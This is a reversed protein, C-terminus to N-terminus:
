RPRRRARVILVGATIVGLATTVMNGDIEPAAVATGAFGVGANTLLLVLMTLGPICVKKIMSHM